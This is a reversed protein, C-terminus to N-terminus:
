NDPNVAAAETPIAAAGGSMLTMTRLM